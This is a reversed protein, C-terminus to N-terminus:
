PKQSQIFISGPSRSNDLFQINPSLESIHDLTCSVSPVTSTNEACNEVDAM